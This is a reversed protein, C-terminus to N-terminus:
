MPHGDWNELYRLAARASDRIDQTGEPGGASTGLAASLASSERSMRRLTEDIALERLQYPRSKALQNICLVAPRRIDTVHHTMCGHLGQLVRLNSLIYM